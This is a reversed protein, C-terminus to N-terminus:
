KGGNNQGGQGGNGAEPARYSIKVGNTPTTSGGSNRPGNPGDSTPVSDGGGGQGQGQGNGASQGKGGGQQPIGSEQGGGGGGGMTSGAADVAGKAAQAATIAPHGAGKAMNQAHNAATTPSGGGGGKGSGGILGAMGGAAALANSFGGGTAGAAAAGLPAAIAMLYKLAIVSLTLTVIGRFWDIFDNGNAIEVFGASIILAAVPKYAIVVVISTYLRPFWQKTKEGGVQGSGAVPLLLAQIPISAQRLFNMVFQVGGILFVVCAIILLGMPNFAQPLLMAVVRETLKADGHFAVNIIAATLQDSAVLLSDIVTIGLTCVLANIVLGQLADALPKGKRQIMARIGQMIVLLVAIMQGLGLMIAQLSFTVTSGDPMKGTDSETVGSNKVQISPTTLWWTLGTKLMQTVFETMGDAMPKIVTNALASSIEKGANPAVIKGAVCATAGTTGLSPTLLLNCAVDWWGDITPPGAPVSAPVADAVAPVVAPAVAPTVTAPAAAMAPAAGPVLLALVVAVFLGRLLTRM